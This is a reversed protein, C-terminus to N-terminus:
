LETYLTYAKLRSNLIVNSGSFTFFNSQKLSNTLDINCEFKTYNILIYQGQYESDNSYQYSISTIVLKNINLTIRIEDISEINTISYTRSGNSNAVLKVVSKSDSEQSILKKLSKLDFNMDNFTKKNKKEDNKIVAVRKEDHDITVFYSGDSYYELDDLATLSTNGSRKLSANTTFVKTGGKKAFVAIDTYLSITKASDLQRVIKGFDDDLNQSFSLHTLFLLVTFFLGKTLYM